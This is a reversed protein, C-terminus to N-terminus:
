GKRMVEWPWKGNEARLRVAYRRRGWRLSRERREVLVLIHREAFQRKREGMVASYLEPHRARVRGLHAHVTGLHIRLGVAVERYSVPDELLCLL